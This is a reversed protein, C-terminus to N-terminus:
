LDRVFDQLGTQRATVLRAAHLVARVSAVACPFDENVVVHDFEQWHSIEDLALRMRRAIEATDEASRGRLRDDLAALTPPLIFVGVVDGPLAARLQRHGQWDIDFVMDRGAGLAQEVPARPTGYCHRNLVRAWELLEGAAVMRDFVAQDCFRYHVGDIEAPRPPRTTVSVSRLLDPESALLADAIATKGAGSPAALVLCVGRRAVASMGAAGSRMADISVVGDHRLVGVRLTLTM